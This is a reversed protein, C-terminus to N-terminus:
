VNNHPIFEIVIPMFGHGYGCLESCQGYYLGAKAGQTSLTNLRGPVADIKFGLAPVAFSHLVDGSTICFMYSDHAILVLRKDVQLLRKQQPKLISDIDTTSLPDVLNSSFIINRNKQINDLSLSDENNNTSFNTLFWTYNVLEYSWYWQYAVVNVIGMPVEDVISSTYLLLFSPGVILSIVQTPFLAWIYEYSMSHIYNLADTIVDYHISYPDNSITESQTFRLIMYIYNFEWWIYYAPEYNSSLLYKSKDNINFIGNFVELYPNFFYSIRNFRRKYFYVLEFYYDRTFVKNYLTNFKDFTDYSYYNNKLDFYSLELNYLIPNYSKSYNDVQANMFDLYLHMLVYNDKKNNLTSYSAKQLLYLGKKFIISEDSDSKILSAEISYNITNDKLSLDSYVNNLM